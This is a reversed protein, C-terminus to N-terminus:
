INNQALQTRGTKAMAVQPNERDPYTRKFWAINDQVRDAILSHIYNADIAVNAKNSQYSTQVNEFHKRSGTNLARLVPAGGTTLTYIPNGSSGHTAALDHNFTHNLSEERLQGGSNWLTGFTKDGQVGTMKVDLKEEAKGWDMWGITKDVGACHELHLLAWDSGNSNDAGWAVPKGKIVWKPGGQGNSGISLSVDFHDEDAFEDGFVEHRTTLVLCPAVMVAGGGVKSVRGEHKIERNTIISGTAAAAADSGDQVVAKRTDEVFINVQQVLGNLSGNSASTQNNLCNACGVSAQLNVRSAAKAFSSLALLASVTVIIKCRSATAM